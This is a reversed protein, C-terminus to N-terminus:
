CGESLSFDSIQFVNSVTRLTEFPILNMGHFLKSLGCKAFHGKLQKAAGLSNKPYNPTLLITGFQINTIGNSVVQIMENKKSNAKMGKKCATAGYMSIYALM